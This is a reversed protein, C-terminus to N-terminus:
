QSGLTFLSVVSLVLASVAGQVSFGIVGSANPRTAKTPVLSICSDPLTWSKKKFSQAISLVDISAGCAGCAKTAQAMAQEKRNEMVELEALYSLTGCHKPDHKLSLAYYERSAKVNPTPRARMVFGLDSTLAAVCTNNNNMNAPIWDSCSTPSYRMASKLRDVIKDARADNSFGKYDVDAIDNEMINAMTPVVAGLVADVTTKLSAVKSSDIVQVRIRQRAQQCANDMSCAFFHTGPDTCTFVYQNSTSKALEKSQKDKFACNVYAAETPLRWVDHSETWRLTVSGGKPCVVVPLEHKGAETSGWKGKPVVYKWDVSKKMNPDCAQSKTADHATPCVAGGHAAAITIKYTQVEKSGICAAWPGWAGVCNVPGMVCAETKTAGGASPCATGGHEANKSITYTQKKQSGACAGWAGWSGVCNVPTKKAVPTSGKSGPLRRGIRPTVLSRSDSHGHAVQPIGSVVCAALFLHLNAMTSAAYAVLSIICSGIVQAL